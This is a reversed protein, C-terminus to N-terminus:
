LQTQLFVKIRDPVEKELEDWPVMMSRTLHIANSFSYSPTFVFKSQFAKKIAAKGPYYPLLKRWMETSFYQVDMVRGAGRRCERTYLGKEMLSPHQYYSHKGPAAYLVPHGQVFKIQEPTAYQTVHMAHRTGKVGMIRFKEDLYVWIHELDYIHNIDSDYLVAYEIVMKAKRAQWGNWLKIQVPQHRNRWFEYLHIPHIYLLTTFFAKIYMQVHWYPFTRYRYLLSPPFHTDTYLTIGVKVPPFPEKDDIRICPACKEILAWEAPTFHSTKFIHEDNKLTKLIVRV